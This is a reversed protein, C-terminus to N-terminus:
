KEAKEKDEDRLDMATDYDIEKYVGRSPDFHSYWKAGGTGNRNKALMSRMVRQSLQRSTIIVSADQGFTDSGSINEPGSMDKGGAANRNLQSAAIVPIQYETAIQTLDSSIAAYDTWEQGNKKMLQAYDIYVVDPKNREIQSAITLASVKGRSADSVHLRGKAQSAADKLFKKYEKIDYDKGQMLSMSDFVKRGISSSLFSHIRMAVAARSQELANFQCNYGHAVASTAMRQLTWSKGEGLRAGVVWFDGPMAGGTYEDLTTFGTPIGAQGSEDFRTKREEVADYIAQWDSLIDSDNTMGMNAAISVMSKHMQQVATDLNGKGLENTVDRISSLLLYRAHAERVAEAFHGTDNVAKIRFEPFASKFAGKSPAKRHRSFYTEMWEWEDPFARFMDKSIGNKLCVVMDQDRLISSILNAEPSTAM